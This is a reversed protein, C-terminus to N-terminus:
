KEEGDTSRKQQKKKGAEESREEVDARRNKRTEESSEKTCRSKEAIRSSIAPPPIPFLHPATEKCGTDMSCTDGVLLQSGHLADQTQKAEENSSNPHKQPHRTCKCDSHVRSHGLSLGAAGKKNRPLNFPVECVWCDLKSSSWGTLHLHHLTVAVPAPLLAALFHHERLSHPAQEQSVTGQAALIERVKLWPRKRRAKLINLPM